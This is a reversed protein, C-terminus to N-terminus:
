LPFLEEVPVLRLAGTPCAAVCALDDYGHCLDCKDARQAPQAAVLPITPNKLRKLRQWLLALPSVYPQDRTVMQVADYPCAPVCAGCGNCSDTIILAGNENWQIADVPCAEVCEAGVRCQRCSDTVDLGNLQVGDLHIRPQGHRTACADECARCNPECLLPNRVLVHTGRLLGRKIAGALQNTRAQDRHMAANEALRRGVIERLQFELEPQEGLLREFDEAPLRLVEVPTLARVDAGHRSRALLAMEGFFDGEDLHAIAQGGQEVVV